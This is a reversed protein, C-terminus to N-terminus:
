FARETKLMLIWNLARRGGGAEEKGGPHCPPLPPPPSVNQRHQIREYTWNEFDVLDKTIIPVRRLIASIWPIHYALALGMTFSRITQFIYAEGGKKLVGTKKNFSLDEVIDFTFYSFWETINIPKEHERDTVELLDTIATAIRGEYRTLALM